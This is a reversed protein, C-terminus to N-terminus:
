IIAHEMLQATSFMSFHVCLDTRSSVVTTVKSCTDCNLDCRTHQDCNLTAAACEPRDTNRQGSIYPTGAVHCPVRVSHGM